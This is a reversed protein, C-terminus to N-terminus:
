MVRRSASACRHADEGGLAQPLNLRAVLDVEGQSTVAVEGDLVGHACHHVHGGKEGVDAGHALQHPPRQRANACQAVPPGHM